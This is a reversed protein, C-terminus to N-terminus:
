KPVTAEHLEAIEQPTLATDYIRVDDMLGRVFYVDDSHGYRGILLPTPSPQPQGTVRKRGVLQGDLYVSMEGFGYTAAIHQWQNAAPSGADLTDVGALYFRVQGNLIQLFYGAQQWAGKCILVPMGRLDEMNVWVGLTLGHQADWEPQPPLEAWGQGGLALAQDAVEALGELFSEDQFSLELIPQIPEASAIIGIQKSPPGTRGDPTLAAVTYSYAEGGEVLDSVEVYHGYEADIFIESAPQHSRDFRVVRYQAAIPADCNWGLIVRSARSAVRIDEPPDPLPLEPIEVAVDTAATQGSAVNKAVITYRATAGSVPAPDQWWGDCVTALLKGDRGISYTEGPRADWTFQVCYQEPLATYKIAPPNVQPPASAPPPEFPPAELLSVACTKKPFEPPWSLRVGVAGKVEIGYEFSGAKALDEPFELAFTTRGLTPLDYRDFRVAGLPRARLAVDLKDEPIGVVIVRGPLMLLAPKNEFAEPLAELAALDEEDFDARERINAWAKANMTALVGLEGKNRIRLAYTHMAEALKSERVLKAAEDLRGDEILVDLGGDPVLLASARDYALVYGVHTGLDELPTQPHVGTKRSLLTDFLGFDLSPLGKLLDVNQTLLDINKAIDKTITAPIGTIDKIEKPLEIPLPIPLLSDEPMLTRLEYAITALESQKEPVGVSWAFTGCESQGGGGVWRYGLGQLQMFIDAATDAQKAGFLDTARRQCFDEVSLDPNWAFRACYSAAEEVARTRWHIGLLGQCGKDRTDRCALAIENLNPQPMWQDGDFEFWVIPWRQRQPPLAGYAQSVTPTVRINDLAAFTVDPPLITDMGPFFDSCHLWQDGGWGSMVLRIDPRFAEIVRHAHLGFLTLRTAEARRRPDAVGAFADGWRDAYSSWATRPTPQTGPSSGMGEPEWLWVYDLMPYDALLAKLRAEFRAQVDGDLADGRVEFGLCVKMGRSKAYALAQRLVDKAARISEAPDEIFSSAAGFYERAFYRGTGGLFDATAMPQTGWTPSSTNVLPQGGVSQAQYEYAAFPETDYTHFGLFNCRMKVLQDIFAKHDALEWTTPSNFFNYWPLSGRIAFVPSKSISIGQKVAEAITPISAPFTDGGLYFGFGWDELLGYVGNQVGAPTPAAIIILRRGGEALSHLVYGDDRPVDLGFPWSIGVAPLSDPTGLVFGTAKPPPSAAPEIALLDNTVAYTCRQLEAAAHRELASAEAGVYITPAASGGQASAGQAWAAAIAFVLLLTVVNRPGM